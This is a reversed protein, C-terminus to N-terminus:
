GNLTLPSVALMKCTTKKPKKLVDKKKGSCENDLFITLIQLLIHAM